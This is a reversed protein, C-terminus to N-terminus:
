NRLYKKDIYFTGFPIISAFLVKLTIKMSWKSEIALPIALFIYFLFLLGHPMGIFKVLFDQKGIYKVPMAVFILFVFSLGELISIMRFIFNM